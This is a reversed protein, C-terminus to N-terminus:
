AELISNFRSIFRAFFQSLSTFVKHELEPYTMAFELLMDEAQMSPDVKAMQNVFERLHKSQEESLNHWVAFVLHDKTQRRLMSKVLARYVLDEHDINLQLLVSEYVEEAVMESEARADLLAMMQEELQQMKDEM